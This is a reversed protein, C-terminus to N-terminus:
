PTSPTVPTTSASKVLDKLEVMVKACIYRLMNEQDANFAANDNFQGMPMGRWAQNRNQCAKAEDPSVGYKMFYYINDSIEEPELEQEIGELIYKAPFSRFQPTVYREYGTGKLGNEKDFFTGDALTLLKQKIEPTIEKYEAM